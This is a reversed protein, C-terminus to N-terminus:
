YKNQIAQYISLNTIKMKSYLQAETDEHDQKPRLSVNFSLVTLM